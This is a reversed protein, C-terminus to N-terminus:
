NSYKEAGQRRRHPIRNGGGDVAPRVHLHDADADLAGAARLLEAPRDAVGVV